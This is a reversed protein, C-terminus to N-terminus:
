DRDADDGAGGPSEVGLARRVTAIGDTSGIRAVEFEVQRLLAELRDHYREDAAAQRPTMGDLAPHPDDPFSRAWAEDAGPSAPPAQGHGEPMWMQRKGLEGALDTVEESVVTAPHGLEALLSQLRVFRARSNVDVTLGDRDRRIRGRTYRGPEQDPPVDMGQARLQALAQAFAGESMREGLWAMEDEEPEFDPHEALAAWAADVRDIALRATIMEMPDGDTNTLTPPQAHWRLLSAVLDPLMVAIVESVTSAVGLPQSREEDALHSGADLDERVGAAWARLHEERRGGSSRIIFDVVRGALSRAQAPTASVFASGSHWVGGVPQVYGLLVEWMILAAAQEPPVELHTRAGTLYDAVVIGPARTDVVQWLGWRTHRAWDDALRRLDVPNADDAAFTSLVTGDVSLDDSPMWWAHEAALRAIEGGQAGSSLDEEALAGADIWADIGEQTAANLDWSSVAYDSVAKRIRYAPERDLFQALCRRSAEACCSEYPSGSGCPCSAPSEAEMAALERLWGARVMQGRDYDLVEALVPNITEVAEALRGEAAVVHASRVRLMPDADPGLAPSLERRAREPDHDRFLALDAALACGTLHSEQRLADVVAPGRDGLDDLLSRGLEPSPPTPMLRTVAAALADVPTRPDTLADLDEQMRKLEARM